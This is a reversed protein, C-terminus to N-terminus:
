LSLASSCGLPSSPAEARPEFALFLLSEPSLSLSPLPAARLRRFGASAGHFCVARRGHGRAVLLAVALGAPRLRRHWGCLCLPPAVRPCDGFHRLFLKLIGAVIAGRGGVVREADGRFRLGATVSVRRPVRLLPWRSVPPLASVCFPSTGGGRSGTLPPPEGPPLSPDRGWVPSRLGPEPVPFLLGWLRRQSVLLSPPRTVRLAALTM